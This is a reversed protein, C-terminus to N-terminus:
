AMGFLVQGWLAGLGGIWAGSAKGWWLGGLLVAAWELHYQALWPALLVLLTAGLNNIFVRQGLLAVALFLVALYLSLTYLPYLAATVALFYGAPPSWFM